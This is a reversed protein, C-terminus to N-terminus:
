AGCGRTSRATSTPPFGPMYTRPSGDALPLHGYQLRADGLAARVDAHRSLVLVDADGFRPEYM